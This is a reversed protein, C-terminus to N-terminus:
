LFILYVVQLYCFTAKLLFTHSTVLIQFKLQVQIKCKSSYSFFFGLETHTVKQTTKFCQPSLLVSKNNSGSQLRWNNHLKLGGNAWMNLSYKSQLKLMEFASVTRYILVCLPCIAYDHLIPGTQTKAAKDQLFIKRSGSPLLM